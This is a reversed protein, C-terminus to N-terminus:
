ITLGRISRTQELNPYSLEGIGGGDAKIDDKTPARAHKARFAKEWTKVVVKVQALDM